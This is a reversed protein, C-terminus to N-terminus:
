CLVHMEKKKKRKASPKDPKPRYDYNIVEERM